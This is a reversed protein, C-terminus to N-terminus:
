VLHGDTAKKVMEAEYEAAKTSVSTAIWSWYNEPLADVLQRVEEPEILLITSWWEDHLKSSHAVAANLEKAVEEADEDKLAEDIVRQRIRLATRNAEVAANRAEKQAKRIAATWNLRFELLVPAGREDVYVPDLESLDLTGSVVAGRLAELIDNM